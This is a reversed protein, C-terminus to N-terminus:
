SKNYKLLIEEAKDSPVSRSIYFGQISDCGLDKLTECQKKDECGEAIVSLGLTHGLNIIARVIEKNQRKELLPQIFSRDIKIKHFPLQNLYSLSSYGTGFDDMALKVGSHALDQLLNAAEDLHRMLLSETLELEIWNPKIHKKTILKKIALTTTLNDFQAASLNVAVTLPGYNMENWKKSQEFAVEMIYETLPIIMGTEEAIPIFSVPPIMGKQPHHWRVLAEFGSIRGTKLDLQPQYEVFFQKELLARRMDNELSIREQTAENLEASFFAYHNAGMKKAEFLAMDAYNILTEANRSDIPHLSIGMYSNLSIQEKNLSLPAELMKIIQTACKYVDEVSSVNRLIIGFEDGEIRALFDKPTLYSLLREAQMKLIEDGIDHGMTNNFRNFAALDVFLVAFFKNKEVQLEQLKQLFLARNPLSTLLDYHSLYDIQKQKRGYSIGSKIMAFFQKDESLQITKNLKNMFDILCSIVKKTLEKKTLFILAFCTKEKQAFPFATLFYNQKQINLPVNLIAEGKKCSGLVAHCLKKESANEKGKTITNSLNGFSCVVSLKESNYSGLCTLDCDMVKSFDEAVFSFVQKPKKGSLLGRIVGTLLLEVSKSFNKQM